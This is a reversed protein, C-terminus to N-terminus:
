RAGEATAPPLAGVLRRVTRRANELLPAELFRYSMAAIGWTALFWPILFVLVTRPELPLNWRTFAELMWHRTVPHILYLGYSLKGVNAIVRVLRPELGSDVAAQAAPRQAWLVCASFVLGMVSFGFVPRHPFFAICALCLAIGAWTALRPFREPHAALRRNLGRALVASALGLALQDMRSLTGFFLMPVYHPDGILHGRYLVHIEYRYRAAVCVACLAIGIFAAALTERRQSCLLVLVGVALYFQEEIALSWLVGLELTGQMFFNSTFFVYPVPHGLLTPQIAPDFGPLGLAFVALLLFYPPWIRATRLLWYGLTQRWRSAGSAARELCTTGILFGSLAFFLDVGRGGWDQLQGFVLGFGGPLHHVVVTIIAIARLVDIYALRKAPRVGPGTVAVPPMEAREVTAM